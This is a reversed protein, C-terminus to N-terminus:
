KSTWRWVAAVASSAAMAALTLRHGKAVAPVRSREWLLYGAIGSLSATGTVRCAECGPPSPTELRSVAVLSAGKLHPYSHLGGFTLARL